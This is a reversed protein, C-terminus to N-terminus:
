FWSNYPLPLIWELRNQALAQGILSIQQRQTMNHNVRHDPAEVGKVCDIVDDPPKTCMIDRFEQPLLHCYKEYLSVQKIEKLGPPELKNAHEM